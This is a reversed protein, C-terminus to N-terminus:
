PEVVPKAGTTNNGEKEVVIGIDLGASDSCVCCGSCNNGAAFRVKNGVIILYTEQGKNSTQVQSKLVKTIKWGRGENLLLEGKVYGFGKDEYDCDRWAVGRIFIAYSFPGIEKREVYWGKARRMAQNEYMTPFDKWANINASKSCCERGVYEEYLQDTEDLKAYYMQGAKGPNKTFPYFPNKHAEDFRVAVDWEKQAEPPTKVGSEEEGCALRATLFFSLFFIIFRAM